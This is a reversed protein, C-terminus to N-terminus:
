STSFMVAAREIVERADPPRGLFFLIMAHLRMANILAPRDGRAEAASLLTAVAENAKQLEGRVVTATAFWFMVQLYEPPKGLQECLERARAFTALANSEAPGHMAILCPGLVLQLDLETRNRSEGEPLHATVEIGRRLHAIAEVNASRLAANKGA